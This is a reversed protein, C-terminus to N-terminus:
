AASVTILVGKRDAQWAHATLAGPKIEQGDLTISRCERWFDQPLEHAFRVLEAPSLIIGRGLLGPGLVAMLLNFIKITIVGEAEACVTGPEHHTIGSRFSAYRGGRRLTAGVLGPMAASLALVDGERILAAGMDDVPSGDLVISQIKEITAGDIGLERGLLAAVSCGTRVRVGVGQQLLVNFYPLLTKKVTLELCYLDQPDKM